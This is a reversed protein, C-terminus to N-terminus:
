PHKAREDKQYRRLEDTIKKLTNIQIKAKRFAIDIDITKQHMEKLTQDMESLINKIDDDMSKSM